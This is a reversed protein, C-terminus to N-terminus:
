LYEGCREYYYCGSYRIVERLSPGQWCREKGKSSKREKESDLCSTLVLILLVSKLYFTTTSFGYNPQITYGLLSSLLITPLVDGLCGVEMIIKKRTKKEESEKLQKREEKKKM